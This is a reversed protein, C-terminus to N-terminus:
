NVEDELAELAELPNTAAFIASGVVLKNAGANAIQKANELNVGGDVQITLSPNDARLAAVLELAREDFASGQVGVEAIGMVQVFDVLSKYQAFTGSSDGPLLAIGVEVGFDGARGAQLAELASMIEGGAGHLVVRTAGAKLYKPIEEKPNIVMADFEFDFDEWFPMGEEEALIREFRTGETYPWTINPAFVGDVTDIQVRSTTGQITALKMELDSFSKPLIAPVIEIM